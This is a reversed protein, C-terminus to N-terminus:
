EICEWYINGDRAVLYFGQSTMTNIESEWKNASTSIRINHKM